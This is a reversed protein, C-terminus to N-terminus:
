REFVALVNMDPGSKLTGVLRLGHEYGRKVMNYAFDGTFYAERPCVHLHLTDGENNLPLRFDIWRVGDTDKAANEVVVMAQKAVFNERFWRWYDKRAARLDAVTEGPNIREPYKPSADGNIGKILDFLLVVEGNSKEMATPILSTPPLAHAEAEELGPLQILVLPRPPLDIYENTQWTRSALQQGQLRLLRDNLGSYQEILAILQRHPNSVVVYNASQTNEAGEVQSGSVEGGAKVKADIGFLLNLLGKGWSVEAEGAVKGALTDQRSASQGQTFSELRQSPRLAADYFSAVQKEDLFLPTDWLFAFSNDGKTLKTRQPPLTCEDVRRFSRCLKRIWNKM